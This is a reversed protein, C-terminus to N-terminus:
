LEETIDVTTDTAIVHDEDVGLVETGVGANHMDVFLTYQGERLCGVGDPTEAHLAEARAQAARIAEATAADDGCAERYIKAAAGQPVPGLAALEEVSANRVAGVTDYGYGRLVPGMLDGVSALSDVPTPEDDARQDSSTPTDERGLIDTVHSVISALPYM